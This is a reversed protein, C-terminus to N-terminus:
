SSHVDIREEQEKNHLNEFKGCLEDLLDVQRHLFKPDVKSVPGDLNNIMGQAASKILLAFGEVPLAITESPRLKTM